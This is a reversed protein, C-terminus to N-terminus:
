EAGRKAEGAEKEWQRLRRQGRGGQPRSWGRTESPAPEEDKRDGPPIKRPTEPTLM